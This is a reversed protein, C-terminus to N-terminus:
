NLVILDKKHYNEYCIESEVCTTGIGEYTGTPFFNGFCGHSPKLLFVSCLCGHGKSNFHESCVTDKKM